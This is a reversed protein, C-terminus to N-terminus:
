VVSKRDSVSLTIWLVVSGAFITLLKHQVINMGEPTPLLWVLLAVALAVFNGYKKGYYEFNQAM